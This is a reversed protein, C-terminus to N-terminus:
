NDSGFLAIAESISEIADGLRTQAANARAEAEVEDTIDNGTGRYGTFDGSGVDFVPM